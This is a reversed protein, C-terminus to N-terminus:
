GSRASRSSGIPSFNQESYSHLIRKWLESDTDFIRIAHENRTILVTWFEGSVANSSPVSWIAIEFEKVRQKAMPKASLNTGGVRKM